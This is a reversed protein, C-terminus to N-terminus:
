LGGCPTAARRRRRGSRSGRNSSLGSISASLWAMSSSARARARAASPTRSRGARATKRRARSAPTLEGAAASPPPRTRRSRGRQAVGRLPGTSTGTGRSCGNFRSHASTQSPRVEGQAHGAPLRRRACRGPHCAPAELGDPADLGLHHALGRPDAARDGRGPARGHGLVRPGPEIARQRRRRLRLQPERARNRRPHEGVDRLRASELLGSVACGGGGLGLERRVGLQCWQVGGPAGLRSARPGLGVTRHTRVAPQDAQGRRRGPRGRQAIPESVSRNSLPPADVRSLRRRRAARRRRAGPGASAPRATLSAAADRISDGAPERSLALETFTLMRQRPATWFCGPARAQAPASASACSRTASRAARAVAHVRFEVEGTAWGNGCRGTWRAREVHGELTRYAWGWVTGPRRRARADGRLRRGGARRRLRAAAGSRQLELLMNRGECRGDPDYYARVISPDAFEYGRMLRRAIQAAATRRGAARAARGAAGPLTPSRGGTAPTPTSRPESPRLEAKGALEALRRRVGRRGSCRHESM